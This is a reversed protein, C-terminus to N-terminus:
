NTGGVPCCHVLKDFRLSLCELLHSRLGNLGLMHNIHVSGFTHRLWCWDAMSTSVNIVTQALEGNALSGDKELRGVAVNQPIQDAQDILRKSFEDTYGM